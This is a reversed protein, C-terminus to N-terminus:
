LILFKMLVKGLAQRRNRDGYGVLGHGWREEQFDMKINDEWRRRPIGLHKAGEPKEVLVRCADLRERQVHWM